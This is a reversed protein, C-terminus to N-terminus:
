HPERERRERDQLVAVDTILRSVVATLDRVAITLEALKTEAQQQREALPGTIMKKTAALLALSTSVFVLWATAGVAFETGPVAEALFDWVWMAVHEIM